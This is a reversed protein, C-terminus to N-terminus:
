DKKQTTDVKLTSSQSSRVPYQLSLFGFITHTLSPTLTLSLGMFKTSEVFTTPLSINNNVLDIGLNHLIGILGVTLFLFGVFSDVPKAWRGQLQKSESLLGVGSAGLLWINETGIHQFQIFNALASAVGFLTFWLWYHMARSLTM